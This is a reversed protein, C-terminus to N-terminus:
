YIGRLDNTIDWLMLGMLYLAFGMAVTMAIAWVITVFLLGFTLVLLIVASITEIM